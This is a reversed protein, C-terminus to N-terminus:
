IQSAMRRLLNPFSISRLLEAHAAAPHATIRSLRFPDWPRVPVSPNVSVAAATVYGASRVGRLVRRDFRGWPYSIHRVPTDLHEELLRRSGAIEDVLQSDTCKTLDPHNATHSGICMGSDRLERLEVSDMLNFTFEGSSADDRDPHSPLALRKGILGSCVYFTAAIGYERLIPLAVEFNDRRGDDFTLLITRRRLVRARTVDDMTLFQYRRESLGDLLARFTTSPMADRGSGVSHLCLIVPSHLHILSHLLLTAHM